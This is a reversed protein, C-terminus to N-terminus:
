GSSLHQVLRRTFIASRRGSLEPRPLRKSKIFVTKIRRLQYLLGEWLLEGYLVVRLFSASPDGMVNGAGRLVPSLDGREYLSQLNEKESAREAADTAEVKTARQQM